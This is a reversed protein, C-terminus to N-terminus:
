GAANAANPVSRALGSASATSAAAGVGSCPRRSDWARISVSSRLAPRCRLMAAVAALILVASPESWSVARGPLPGRRHPTLADANIATNVAM